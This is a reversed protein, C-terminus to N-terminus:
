LTLSLNMRVLSLCDKKSRWISQFACSYFGKSSMVFPNPVAWLGESVSKIKVFAHVTWYSTFLPSLTSRKLTTEEHTKNKKKNFWISSVWQSTWSWLYPNQLLIYSKKWLLKFKCAVQIPQIRQSLLNTFLYMHLRTSNPKICCLWEVDVYQAWMNRM